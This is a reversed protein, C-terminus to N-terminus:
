RFPNDYLGSDSSVEVENTGESESFESAAAIAMEELEARFNNEIDGAAAYDENERRIAQALVYNRIPYMFRYDIDIVDTTLTIQYPRKIYWVKAQPTQDTDASPPTPIFGITNDLIYYLAATKSRYNTGVNNQIRWNSVSKLRAARIWDDGSAGYKIEVKIIGGYRPINESISYEATGGTLDFTVDDGFLTEKVDQSIATLKQYTKQYAYSIWPLYVSSGINPDDLIDEVETIIDSATIDPNSESM